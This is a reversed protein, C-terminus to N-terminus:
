NNLDYTVGNVGVLLYCTINKNSRDTFIYYDRPFRKFMFLDNPTLMELINTVRMGCEDYFINEEPYYILFLVDNM